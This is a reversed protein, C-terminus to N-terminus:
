LQSRRDRHLDNQASIRNNRVEGLNLSALLIREGGQEAPGALPHGDADVSVSGLM